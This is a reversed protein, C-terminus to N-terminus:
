IEKGSTVDWRRGEDTCVLTKGDPSLAIGFYRSQLGLRFRVTGLRAIAGPPVPDGFNDTLVPKDKAKVEQGRALTFGIISITLALVLGLSPRFSQHLLIM